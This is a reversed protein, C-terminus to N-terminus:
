KFEPKLKERVIKDAWKDSKAVEKKSYWGNHWYRDTAWFDKRLYPHILYGM